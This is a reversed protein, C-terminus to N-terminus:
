KEVVEAWEFPQEDKAFSSGWPSLSDGIRLWDGAFYKAMGIGVKGDRRFKALVPRDVEPKKDTVKNWTM